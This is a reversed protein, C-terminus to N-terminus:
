LEENALVELREHLKHRAASVDPTHNDQKLMVAYVDLINSLEVCEEYTLKSCRKILSNYRSLRDDCEMCINRDTDRNLVKVMKRRGCYSCFSKKDYRMQKIQEATEQRRAVKDMIDPEVQVLKDVFKQLDNPVWLGASQADLYEQLRTKYSELSRETSMYSLRSRQNRFSQLKNVCGYCLQVGSPGKGLPASLINTEGCGECIPLVVAFRQLKLLYMPYGTEPDKGWPMMSLGFDKFDHTM